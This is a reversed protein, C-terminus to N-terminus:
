VYDEGKLINFYDKELEKLLSDEILWNYPYGMLNIVGVIENPVIRITAVEFSQKVEPSELTGKEFQQHYGTVEAEYEKGNLYITTTFRAM